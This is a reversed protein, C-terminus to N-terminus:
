FSQPKRGRKKPVNNSTDQEKKRREALDLAAKGIKTNPNQDPRIKAKKNKQSKGIEEEVGTESIVAEIKLKEIELKTSDHLAKLKTAKNKAGLIEGQRVYFLRDAEKASEKIFVLASTAAVNLLNAVATPIKGEKELSSIELKHKNMYGEFKDATEKVGFAFGEVQKINSELTNFEEIATLTLNTLLDLNHNLTEIKKDNEM